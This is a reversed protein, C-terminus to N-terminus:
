RVFRVSYEWYGWGNYYRSQVAYSKYGGTRRFEEVEPQLKEWASAEPTVSTAGLKFRYVDQTGAEAVPKEGVSYTACGGLALALALLLVRM